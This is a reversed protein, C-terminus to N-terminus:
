KNNNFEERIISYQKVDHQKGKLYMRKRLTGEYQMGAKQMVRESGENDALCKAEIRELEMRDFGFRIVEKAAESMYGKHWYPQALVYGIEGIYHKQQWSVYNITGILRKEEKLEIGWFIAQNSEYLSLVNDLFQQTDVMSQYASWFVFQSVDPDSGYAYIAEADSPTVKRLLLRETELTPHNELIHEKQM